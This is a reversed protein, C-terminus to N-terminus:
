SIPYAGTIILISGTVFYGDTLIGNAKASGNQTLGLSTRNPYEAIATSYTFGAGLTINNITVGFSYIVSNNDYTIPFPLSVTANGASVAGKNTLNIYITFNCINGSISYSGSTTQTIGTTSNNFMLIPVFSGKNQSSQYLSMNVAQIDQTNYIVFTQNSM